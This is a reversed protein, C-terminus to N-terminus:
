WDMMTKLIGLHLLHLADPQWLWYGNCLPSRRFPNKEVRLGISAVYEADESNGPELAPQYSKPDRDRVGGVTSCPEHGM